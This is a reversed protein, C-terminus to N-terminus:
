TQAQSDSCEVWFNEGSKQAEALLDIGSGLKIYGQEESFRAFISASLTDPKPANFCGTNIGVNLGSNGEIQQDKIERLRRQAIRMQYAADDSLYFLTIHQNTQKFKKLEDVTANKQLTAHFTSSFNHEPFESYFGLSLTMSKDQLSVIKDTIVALRVTSPNAALPDFSQLKWMSSIPMGVCSSLLVAILLSIIARTARLRQTLLLRTFPPKMLFKM